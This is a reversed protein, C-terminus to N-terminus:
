PDAARRRGIRGGVPGLRRSKIAKDSQKTKVAVTVEETEALIYTWLPCNGKFADPDFTGPTDFHLIDGRVDAQDGTFKGIIIKDDTLPKIGMARAVVQGSPLRMRWGRMLNRQAL